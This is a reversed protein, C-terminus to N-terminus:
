PRRAILLGRTICEGWSAWPGDLTKRHRANGPLQAFREWAGVWTVEFGAASLYLELWRHCIPQNNVHSRPNFGEVIGEVTRPVGSTYFMSEIVLTARSRLLPALGEELNDFHYVLGLCLVIRSSEVADMGVSPFWGELLRLREELGQYRALVLLRKCYHPQSEIARVTAGEQALRIAFWGEASGIDTVRLGKFSSGLENSILGWMVEAYDDRNFPRNQRRPGITYTSLGHSLPVNHYFGGESLQGLTWLTAALKPDRATLLTGIARGTARASRGLRALAEVFRERLLPQQVKKLRLQQATLGGVPAPLTIQTESM